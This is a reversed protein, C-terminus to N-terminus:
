IIANPIKILSLITIVVIIVLIVLNWAKVVKIVIEWFPSWGKCNKM